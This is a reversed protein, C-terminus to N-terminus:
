WLCPHLVNNLQFNAVIVPM